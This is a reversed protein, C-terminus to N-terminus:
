AFYRVAEIRAYSAAKSSRASQSVTNAAAITMARLSM